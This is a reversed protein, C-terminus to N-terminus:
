TVLSLCLNGVRERKYRINRGPDLTLRVSRIIKSPYVKHVLRESLVQITGETSVEYFDCLDILIAKKVRSISAACGRKLKENVDEAARSLQKRQRPIAQSRDQFHAQM